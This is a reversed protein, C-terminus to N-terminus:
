RSPHWAVQMLRKNIQAKQAKRKQHSEENHWKIVGDNNVWYNDYYHFAEPHTTTFWLARGKLVFYVVM